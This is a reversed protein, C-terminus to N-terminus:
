TLVHLHVEHSRKKANVRRNGLLKHLRFIMDVEDDQFKGKKINPKLYNMWRLRCSKRCRNLGARGPVRHWEGEGYRQVCSRLLVDEEEMWSGKRVGYGKQM